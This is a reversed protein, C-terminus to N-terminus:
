DKRLAYVQLLALFTLNNPGDQVAKILGDRSLNTLNEVWERYMKLMARRLHQTNMESIKLLGQSESLYHIGDEFTIGLAKVTEAIQQPTGRLVLGNSLTLETTNNGM